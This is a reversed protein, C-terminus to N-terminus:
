WLFDKERKPAPRRIRKTPLATRTHKEQDDDNVESNIQDCVPDTLENDMISSTSGKNGKVVCISEKPVQTKLVQNEESSVTPGDCEICDVSDGKQYFQSQIM